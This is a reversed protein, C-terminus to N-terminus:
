GSPKKLEEEILAKFADLSRSQAMRGNIFFSPTGRVGAVKGQRVELDVQGKVAPSTMDAEFKPVDLRLKEAISRITQPSLDGVHKFLEDHMEWFKGQKGAALAARAAPDANPHMPLPFNKYVFNVNQPYAKLVQDVLATAQACYPCQFDSFEVITVPADKPGRVYANALPIEHKQATIPEAAAAGRTLLYAPASLAVMIACCLLWRTRTM